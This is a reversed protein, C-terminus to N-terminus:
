FPHPRGLAPPSSRHSAPRPDPPPQQHAYHYVELHHHAKDLAAMWAPRPPPPVPKLIGLAALLARGQSPDREPRQWARWPGDAPDTPVLWANLARHPTTAKDAETKPSSGPRLTTMPWALAAPTLNSPTGSPQTPTTQDAEAVALPQSQGAPAAAKLWRQVTRTSVRLTEAIQRASLGSAALNIARPKEASPPRGPPAVYNPHGLGIGFTLFRPPLRDVGLADMLTLFHEAYAAKEWYSADRRGRKTMYLPQRALDLPRADVDYGARALRQADEPTIIGEFHWGAKASWDAVLVGLHPAALNGDFHTITADYDAAVIVPPLDAQFLVKVPPLVSVAVLRSLDGGVAKLLRNLARGPKLLDSNGWRTTFNPWRGRTAIHRILRPHKKDDLGHAKATLALLSPRPKDGLARVPNPKPSPM